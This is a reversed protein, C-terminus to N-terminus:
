EVRKRKQIHIRKKVAAKANERLQRIVQEGDIGCLVQYWGSRFFEENELKEAISDVKKRGDPNEYLYEMAEQYDQTAQEVIAAALRRYPDDQVCIHITKEKIDNRTKQGTMKM